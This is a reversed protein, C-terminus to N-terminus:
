AKQLQITVKFLDGDVEIDLDGDHLDVISKAIALGLGSGETHRSTDRRKFREFLEDINESLEFKTVNKFTIVALGDAEKVNIYVRTNELSYKLINGILNDFVRWLKQGDVNSYLPEPSYTVRLQLTSEKLAVDHEALAQELLQNLNVRQKNLEISGSAMKSAEFLDDILHKLRKSKSDIIGIYQQKEEETIGPGKLLETYTIISTLPTRLDHSVNTILETKLRESKAQEKRSSRVGHKLLNLNSALEALFSKGKVELDPVEKGTALERAYHLIRNFDRTRRFLVIWIPAGAALCVLFLLIMVPEVFVTTAVGGLGFVFLFLITFQTGVKRNLFIGKILRASKALLTGKWEKKLMEESRITTVLFKLQIIAVGILFALLLMHYFINEIWNIISHYWSLSLDNFLAAFIFCGNIFLILLRIDFPIRLYYPRVEQMWVTNLVKSKRYLMISMVLAVMGSLAFGFFLFRKTRFDEAEQLLGDKVSAQDPVGIFGKFTGGESYILSEIEEDYGRKLFQDASSFYGENRSPYNRVYELKRKYAQENWNGVKAGKINTFLDNTKTDRLYYVFSSQYTEFESRQSDLEKFIENVKEQKEKIIKDKVYQDNKFNETIDKIKKDKELIYLQEAETNGAEKSRAIDGEYQSKISSIQDNLDGYRYRYEEIEEPSVEIKQKVDYPTMDYLEYTSLLSAFHTYKDQFQGTEYYNNKLFHSGDSLISAFGSIGYALLLLWAFVIFKNKWKIDM